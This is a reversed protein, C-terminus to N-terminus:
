RDQNEKIASSKNSLEVIETAGVFFGTTSLGFLLVSTCESHMLRCSTPGASPSPTPPAAPKVEYASPCRGHDGDRADVMEIFFRLCSQRKVSLGLAELSAAERLSCPPESSTPFRRDRRGSGAFDGSCKTRRESKATPLRDRNLCRGSM